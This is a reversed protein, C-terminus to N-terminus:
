NTNFFGNFDWGRQEQGERMWGLRNATIGAARVFLTGDLYEAGDLGGEAGHAGATSLAAGEQSSLGSSQASGATAGVTSAPSSAVHALSAFAGRGVGGYCEAFHWLARQAKCLHENPHM